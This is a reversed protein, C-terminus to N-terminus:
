AGAVPSFDGYLLYNTIAQNAIDSFSYNDRVEVFILIYYFLTVFSPNATKENSFEYFIGEIHNKLLITSWWM